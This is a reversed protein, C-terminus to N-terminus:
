QALARLALDVDRAVVLGLGAVNALDDDLPERRAAGPLRELQELALGLDQGLQAVGAHRAVDGGDLLRGAREVQDHLARRAVVQAVEDGAAPQGGTTWRSRLGDLMTRAGSPLIARTSKPPTSSAARSRPPEVM